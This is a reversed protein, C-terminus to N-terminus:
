GGPKLGVEGMQGVEVLLRGVEMLLRGVEMMASIVKSGVRRLLGGMEMFRSRRRMKLSTEVGPPTMM